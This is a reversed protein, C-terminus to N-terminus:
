KEGENAALLETLEQKMKGFTLEVHSHLPIMSELCKERHLEIGKELLKMQEYLCTKLRDVLNGKKDLHHDIDEAIEPNAERYSGTIFSEYNKIGGNVAADVTGSLSM